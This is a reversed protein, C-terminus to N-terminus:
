WPNRWEDADVMAKAKQWIGRGYQARNALDDYANRRAEEYTRGDAQLLTVPTDKTDVITLEDPGESYVGVGTVLLEPSIWALIYCTNMM